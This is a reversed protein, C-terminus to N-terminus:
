RDMVILEGSLIGAANGEDTDIHMELSHGPGARVVVEDFTIERTGIKRIRVRDGNKVKFLRAEDDSIHLHRASVIVGKSIEVEGAPGILKGGPTGDIDGSMRVVPKVGLVYSDTVSIEVQTEKREPGLVRIDKITGKPGALAVKEGCVFQGPQSLDRVPKLSYGKGFLKEVDQAALHIHRNSVAVPVYYIGYEEIFAKIAENRVKKRVSDRDM